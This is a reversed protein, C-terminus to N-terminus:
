HDERAERQDRRSIEILMAGIAASADDDEDLGAIRELLEFDGDDRDNSVEDARRTDVV